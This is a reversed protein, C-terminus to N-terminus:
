FQYMGELDMESVAVDGVRIGDATAGWFGTWTVMRAGLEWSCKDAWQKLDM